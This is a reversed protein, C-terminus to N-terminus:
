TGSYRCTRKRYTAAEVIQECTLGDIDRLDAQAVNAKAISAGRPDFIAGKLNSGVLNAEILNM